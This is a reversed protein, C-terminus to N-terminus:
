APENEPKQPDIPVIKTQMEQLMGAVERFPKTSLYNAIAQALEAPIKMESM